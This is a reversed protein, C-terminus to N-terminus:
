KVMFKKGNQIAIGKYGSNVKQGALNYIPADTNLAAAKVLSIGTTIKDGPVVATPTASGVAEVAMNATAVNVVSRGTTGVNTAVGSENVVAAFEASLAKNPSAVYSEVVGNSPTFDYGGFGLQSSLQFIYYVEGQEVNLTIWGWFAQNGGAIVYNWKARDADTYKETDAWPNTFDNNHIAMIEENNLLRMMEQGDKNKANTKGDAEKVKMGNIYGSLTYDTGMVGPVGTSGKVVVTQRNGKNVWVLVKLVGSQAPTFKYYLGYSPIGTAGSTYETYTYFPRYTGTPEDSTWIEEAYIAEYANGQGMVFYLKTGAEDNIDEKNNGNKWTIDGMTIEAAEFLAGKAILEEKSEAQVNVSMAVLAMSILTFFKKMLM